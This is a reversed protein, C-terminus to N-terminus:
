RGKGVSPLAEGSRVSIRQVGDATRVRRLRTPLNTKPDIVMVAGIPIPAEKEFIGAAQSRGAGQKTHRKKLNLGEVVVLGERPLVSTVRGRKGKEKGRRLVITDGKVINCKVTGLKEPVPM